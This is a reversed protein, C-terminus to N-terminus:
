RSPDLFVSLGAEHSLIELALTGAHSNGFKNLAPSWVAFSGLGPVIALIGGGVGSKGPIGVRFAFDGSMDYHGCTLMLANIRAVRDATTIVNGSVPDVGNAALFLGARSLQSTTMAIACQQFYTWLVTEIDNTMVGFSKMFYALSRNRAGWERESRAVEGDIGINRDSTADKVLALLKDIPDENECSSVLQDTTVIAGANIFPNRPIGNERELQVISNFGTGSPERGVVDWLNGGAYNLATTLTFVKSISQISFRTGTAGTHFTRGDVLSLSLAFQNPDVNALAPIYDAVAGEGVEDKVENAAIAILRAWDPRNIRSYM